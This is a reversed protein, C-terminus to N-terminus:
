VPDNLAQTPRAAYSIHGAPLFFLAILPGGKLEPYHHSGPLRVTWGSHCWGNPGALQAGENLPAVLNFEGYPYGHYDM